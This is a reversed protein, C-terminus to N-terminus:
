NFINRHMFLKADPVKTGNGEWWFREKPVFDSVLNLTEGRVATRHRKSRRSYGGATMKKGSESYWTKRPVSKLSPEFRYSVVKLGKLWYYVRGFYAAHIWKEWLRPTYRKADLKPTWQLLWLVYIGKQAYQITRQMITELSLSSIQVEIAVSVGNINASVDPRNTGLPRELAVDRVRPDNKLAQFIEMKCQRHKESENEAYLCALPNTHAFYNVRSKGSKLIVPDGCEPCFFPAQSKNAFYAAVIEDTLKRKACLV